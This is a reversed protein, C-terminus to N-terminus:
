AYTEWIWLPQKWSANASRWQAHGQLQAMTSLIGWVPLWLFIPQPNTQRGCGVPEWCNVKMTGRLATVCEWSCHSTTATFPLLLSLCEGVRDVWSSLCWFLFFSPLISSSCPLPSCFCLCSSFFGRPGEAGGWQPCTKARTEVREVSFRLIVESYRRRFLISRFRTRAICKLASCDQSDWKAERLTAKRM